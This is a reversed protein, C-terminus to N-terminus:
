ERAFMEDALDGSKLVSEGIWKGPLSRLHLVSRRHKAPQRNVTKQQRLVYNELWARLEEIEASSLKPIAAEIERVTSM